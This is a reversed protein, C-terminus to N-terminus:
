NNPPTWGQNIAWSSLSKFLTIIKSVSVSDDASTKYDNASVTGNWDVIFADSRHEIETNNDYYGNGIVFAANSSISNYRGGVHMNADGAITNQGETHAHDALASTMWGEAHSQGGTSSAITNTGESHSGRGFASTQYGEAHAAHNFSGEATTITALTQWGEAHGYNCKASTSEGEAHAAFGISYTKNGEAHSNSGNANTQQGEAHAHDALASTMWGESHAQGGNSSAITYGGEANSGRGLASTNHGFAAAGAGSAYTGSGAVFSMDANNGVTGDTNIGIVGNNIVLDTGATLDSGGGIPIQVDNIKISTIKDNEVNIDTINLKSSVDNWKDTASSYIGIMQGDEVYVPSVASYEVHIDQGIPFWRDGASTYAVEDNNKVKFDNDGSKTTGGIWWVGSKASSGTLGTISYVDGNRKDTKTKIEDVSGNGRYTLPSMNKIEDSLSVVDDQLDIIDEVMDDYASALNGSVGDIQDALFDDRASLKGFTYKQLWSGDAVTKRSVKSPILGSSPDNMQEKTSQSIDAM